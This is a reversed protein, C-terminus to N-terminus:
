EGTMEVGYHAALENVFEELMEDRIKEMERLALRLRFSGPAEGQFVALIIRRVNQETLPAEMM